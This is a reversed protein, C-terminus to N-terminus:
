SKKFFTFIPFRSESRSHHLRPGFKIYSTHPKITEPVLFPNRHKIPNDSLPYTISSIASQPNLSPISISTLLM